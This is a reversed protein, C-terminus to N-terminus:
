ARQASQPPDTEMVADGYDAEVVDLQCVQQIQWHRHDSLVRRRQAAGRGPQEQAPQVAVVPGELV